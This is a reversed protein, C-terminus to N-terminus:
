ASRKKLAAWEDRLGVTRHFLMPQVGDAAFYGIREFQVVQGPVVGGDVPGLAPEVKAQAVEVSHPNLDDLPDGTSEGPVEATFLRDYLRAEADLATPASVWHMTSKVKRGDPANGGESLPDYTAHVEAVSGDDALVVDTATVLYAGRLRVERGPTLRFFKPPPTVAFDDQEIWLEGSFPVRRAGDALNEPNNGIE